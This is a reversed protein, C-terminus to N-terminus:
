YIIKDWKLGLYVCVIIQIIFILFLYPNEVAFSKIGAIAEFLALIRRAQYSFLQFLVLQSWVWYFHVDEFITAEMEIFCLFLKDEQGDFQHQIWKLFKDFWDSAEKVM